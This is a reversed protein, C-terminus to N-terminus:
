FCFTGLEKTYVLLNQWTAVTEYFFHVVLLINQVRLVYYHYPHYDRRADNVKRQKPLLLVLVSLGSFVAWM